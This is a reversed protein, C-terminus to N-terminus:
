RWGRPNEDFSTQFDAIAKELKERREPNKSSLDHSENDLVLDTLMPEAFLSIVPLPAPFFLDRQKKLSRVRFKYREDRVAAIGATYPAFYFLSGQSSADHRDLFPLMNEGDIIRDQLLPIGALSLVTPFIDIQMAIGDREAGAPLKGPWHFIGPVRMGGEFTDGKRGRLNGVGSLFGGGNDSTVILLTNELLGKERLKEVVAGVNRDLDEIM